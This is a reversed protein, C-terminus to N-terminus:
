LATVEAKVESPVAEVAKVSNSFGYAKIIYGIVGGLFTAVTVAIVTTLFKVGHTHFHDACYQALQAKTSM